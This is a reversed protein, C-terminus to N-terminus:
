HKVDAFDFLHMNQRAHAYAAMDIATRSLNMRELLEGGCRIILNVDLDKFEALRIVYRLTPGMLEPIGFTIIGQRSEAMVHWGYGFYKRALIDLVGKAIHLDFGKLDDPTGDLPAVYTALALMKLGHPGIQEEAAVIRPTDDPQSM